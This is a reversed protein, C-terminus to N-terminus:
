AIDDVLLGCDDALIELARGATLRRVVRGVNDTLRVDVQRSEEDISLNLRLEKEALQALVRAADDLADLVEPPPSAPIPEGGRRTPETRRIRTAAGTPTTQHAYPDRMGSM